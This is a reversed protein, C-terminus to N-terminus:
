DRLYTKITIKIIIIIIIIIMIIYFKACPNERPPFNSWTAQWSRQCWVWHVQLWQCWKQGQIERALDQYKECKETEKQLINSDGPVAIDM